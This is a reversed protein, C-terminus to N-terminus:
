GGFFKVETEYVKIKNLRALIGETIEIESFIPNGKESQHLKKQDMLQCVQKDLEQIKTKFRKVIDSNKM